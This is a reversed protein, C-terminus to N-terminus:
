GRGEATRALVPQAGPSPLHPGPQAGERGGVNYPPRPFQPFVFTPFSAESGDPQAEPVAVNSFLYGLILAHNRRANIEPQDRLDPRLAGSRNKNKLTIQVAEELCFVSCSGGGLRSLQYM